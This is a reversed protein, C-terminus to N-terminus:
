LYEHTSLVGNHQVICALIREQSSRNYQVQDKKSLKASTDLEFSFLLDAHMALNLQKITNTMTNNTAKRVESNVTNHHNRCPFNWENWGTAVM